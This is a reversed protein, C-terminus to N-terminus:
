SLPLDEHGRISNLATPDTLVAFQLKDPLRDFRDKRSVSELHKRVKASVRRENRTSMLIDIHTAFLQPDNVLIKLPAVSRSEIHLNALDEVLKDRRRAINPPSTEFKTVLLKHRFLWGGVRKSALLVALPISVILGAVFPLFWPLISSDFHYVLATLVFGVLTLKGYDIVAESWAIEQEDRQQAKWQVSRGQLVSMVFRAHYIAMIPAILISLITELLVSLIMRTAGRSQNRRQQDQLNVVLGFVKPALLLSMSLAFLGAAYPFTSTLHATPFLVMQMMTLVVFAIWLPAGCYSMIGTIFHVRSLPKFGENIVLHWHQLNGQCWRQDRRAFDNLTTPCEEFSGSLDTALKVQYGARLMLAAEVFDHSLIEGGLPAMGPLIPLNCHRKFASVRIIANHGFYNGEGGAWVSFGTSYIPGYVDAAFQQLRAFLSKRGIPVPPVQLIGLKPDETIRDVMAAMTEGSVLSDADLVIMWEYGAGWLDCFDAINGSKRATNRSRHRYYLNCGSDPFKRQYAEKVTSWIKEERLWVEPRTSDSLVFFDFEDARGTAQLSEIMATVGAFVVDPAENYVPMLVATRQGASEGVTEGVHLSSESDSGPGVLSLSNRQRNILFGLLALAFAFSILGFLLTFLLATMWELADVRGDSRLVQWYAILGIFFVVLTLSSVFKRAQAVSFLVNEKDPVAGVSRNTSM